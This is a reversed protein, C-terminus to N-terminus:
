VWNKPIKNFFFLCNSVPFHYLIAPLIPVHESRLFRIIGSRIFWIIVVRFDLIFQSRIFRIIRSRYRWCRIVQWRGCSGFYIVIVTFRNGTGFFRNQRCFFWNRALVSRQVRFEFIRILSWRRRSSRMQRFNRVVNPYSVTNSVDTILKFFFLENPEKRLLTVLHQYLLQGFLLWM